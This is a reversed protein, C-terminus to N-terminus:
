GSPRGKQTERPLPGVIVHPGSEAISLATLANGTAAGSATNDFICWGEPHPTLSAIVVGIMADDYSSHYVRPEGHLRCYALGPWGGPTSALPAVAPHAAVRGIRFEALLAGAEPTFWTAHRPECVAAGELRARLDSFFRLDTAPNFALSPPLQLLLPGLRDGLGAIESLFMDLLPTAGVLRRDHSIQRPMKVAFRFAEPVSAAWRQYTKTRHPRHFSTNIEVAGFVSAYRELETGQASFAQRFSAPITWGATGIRLPPEDRITM